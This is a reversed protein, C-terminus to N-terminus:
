ALSKSTKIQLTMGTSKMSIGILFVKQHRSTQSAKAPLKRSHTQAHTCEQAINSKRTPGTGPSCQTYVHANWETLTDTTQKLIDACMVQTNTITPALSEWGAHTNAASEWHNLSTKIATIQLRARRSRSQVCLSAVSKTNAFSAPKQKPETMVGDRVIKGLDTVM